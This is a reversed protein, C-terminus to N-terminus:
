ANDTAEPTGSDAVFDAIQVDSLEHEPMKSDHNTQRIAAILRSREANGPVIVPGNDGGKLFDERTDLLLGGKIKENEHSHCKYCREVLVPRIRQEFFELQEPTSGAQIRPPFLFPFLLLVSLFQPQSTSRTRMVVASSLAALVPQSGSVKDVRGTKIDM